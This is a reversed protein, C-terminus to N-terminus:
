VVHCACRRSRSRSHTYSDSSSAIMTRPTFVVDHCTPLVSCDNCANHHVNNANKIHTYTFAHNKKVHFSRSTSAM